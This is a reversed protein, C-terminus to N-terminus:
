SLNRTSRHWWKENKSVSNLKTAWDHGNKIVGHLLVGPRGTWWWSGSNVWVWTWQTLSTMWGDWGRDNDEGGAKLRAWCWPRKLHTLEKCWTALTNSSWSWCRNSKQLKLIIELYFTLALFGAEKCPGCPVQRRGWDALGTKHWGCTGACEAGYVRTAKWNEWHVLNKGVEPGTHLVRSNVELHFETGEVWNEPIYYSDKEWFPRQAGWGGVWCLTVLNKWLVSFMKKM